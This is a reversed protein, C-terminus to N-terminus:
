DGKTKPIIIKTSCVCAEDDSIKNICAPEAAVIRPSHFNCESKGIGHVGTSTRQNIRILPTTTEVTCTCSKYSWSPSLDRPRLVSGRTKPSACALHIVADEIPTQHKILEHNQPSCHVDYVIDKPSAHRITSLNNVPRATFSSLLVKLNHFTPIIRM